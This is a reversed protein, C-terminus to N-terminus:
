DRFIEHCKQCTANLKRAALLVGRDEKATSARALDLASRRMDEAFTQWDRQRRGPDHDKLWNAVAATRYAMQALPEADPKGGEALRLLLSEIGQGGEAAPKFPAMARAVRTTQRDPGAPRGTTLLWLATLVLCVLATGFALGRRTLREQLLARARALRRSMSGTPWGLEDAAEANTKGELYCLVVPARYKEPLRHLEDDLVLRLERRAVEGLPDEHPHVDDPLRGYDGDRGPTRQEDEGDALAGAPRERSRQRMAAGLAHRALRSAVAGLWGTVSERWPIVAAKRALVLFTAQSVDEADHENRLVRRCVALVMAGHRRVLAEFAGQERRRVFRELLQRDSLDEAPRPGDPRRVRRPATVPQGHTM